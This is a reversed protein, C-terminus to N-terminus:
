ASRRRRALWAAPVVIAAGGVGGALILWPFSGEEVPRTLSSRSEIRDALGDPVSIFEAGRWLVNTSPSYELTAAGTTWPSPEVTEIRITRWDGDDPYDNTAARLAFLTAYSGPDEVPRGAVLVRAITPTAFPRSGATLRDLVARLSGAQVWRWVGPDTEVALRGARPAYYQIFSPTSGEDGRAVFELRFFPTPAPTGTSVPEGQLEVARMLTALLAPNTVSSCASAGCARFTSLEKAHASAAFALGALAVLPVLSLRQVPSM